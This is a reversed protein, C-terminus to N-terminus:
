VQVLCQAYLIWVAGAITLSSMYHVYLLFEDGSARCALALVPCLDGFFLSFDMVASHFISLSNQCGHLISSSLLLAM